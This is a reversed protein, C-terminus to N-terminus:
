TAAPQAVTQQGASASSETFDRLIQIVPQFGAFNASDNQAIVWDCLKRKNLTHIEGGYKEDVRIDYFERRALSEPLLNEIGRKFKTNATNSPISRVFLKDSLTEARPSDCDYLLLLKRQLLNINTRFVKAVRDLADKGGGKAVGRANNGIWEIKLASSLDSLNLVSLCANLYDRDTDGEVLVTPQASKAIGNRVAEEFAKTERYYDLSRKFESFRETSIPKGDPLEYITINESGFEREMGLMFLPAHTTVIFQVKPFLKLLKPLSVFQLDTHLHADIEDILVIGEIESLNNAKRLDAVDSYRVITCFLNFLLSQGLSLHDLSPIITQGNQAVALRAGHNRYNAHIRADPVDLVARLITDVNTRAVSLFLRDELNEHPGVVAGTASAEVQVRSDFLVDLIWQKNKERCREVFVPKQLRGQIRSVDRLTPEQDKRETVAELNLWHPFERRTSPFFCLASNFCINQVEDKDLGNFAKNNEDNDPWTAGTFRQRIPEPLSGHAIKGTKDSYTAKKDGRKFALLTLGFAAGVRQNTPGSLKFYHHGLGLQPVVDQFHPTAMLILADAINAQLITKGSGNAGVLVVPKPLGDAKFPLTLDLRSIPGVNEIFVDTLYM